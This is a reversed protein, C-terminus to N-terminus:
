SCFIHYTSLQFVLLFEKRVSQIIQLRQENPM